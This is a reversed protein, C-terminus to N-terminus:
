VRERCSARGIQSGKEEMYRIAAEPYVCILILDCRPLLDDTLERAVGGDLLAFKTVSPDKDFAAVTHGAATYAKAFSGGILGLGVIGVLMPGDGDSSGSTGNDQRADGTMPGDQRASDATNSSAAISSAAISGAAISGAANSSAVNSGAASAPKGADPSVNGSSDARNLM